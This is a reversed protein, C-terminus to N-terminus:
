FTTIKLIKVEIHSMIYNINSPVLKIMNDNKLPTCFYSNSILNDESIM